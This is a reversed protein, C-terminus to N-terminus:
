RATAGAGRMNRIQSPMVVDIIFLLLAAILTELNPASSYVDRLEAPPVMWTANVPLDSITAM